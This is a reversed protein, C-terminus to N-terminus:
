EPTVPTMDPDTGGGDPTPAPGDDIEALQASLSKYSPLLYTQDEQAVAAGLQTIAQAMLPPVDQGMLDTIETQMRNKFQTMWSLHRTNSQRAVIYAFQNIQKFVNINM